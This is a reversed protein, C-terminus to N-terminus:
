YRCAILLLWLYFTYSRLKSAFPTLAGHDYLYGENDNVEM